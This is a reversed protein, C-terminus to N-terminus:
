PLNTDIDDFTVGDAIKHKQMDHMLLEMLEENRGASLMLVYLSIRNPEYGAILGRKKSDKLEEFKMADIDVSFMNM